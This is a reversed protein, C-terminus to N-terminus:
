STTSPRSGRQPQVIAVVFTVDDDFSRSGRWRDLVGLLSEALGAATVEASSTIWERIRGGDLFEGKANQAEPIGDTYLLIRDGPELPWEENTYSADATLGMMFGREFGEKVSSDARSVLLSPHGANAVTIVGREADIVAYVATVFTGNVNQVLIRNM